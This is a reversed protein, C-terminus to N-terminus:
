VRLNKDPIKINAREEAEWLQWDWAHGNKLIRGPQSIPGHVHLEYIAHIHLLVATKKKKKKLSLQIM